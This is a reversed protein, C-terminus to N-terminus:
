HAPGHGWAGQVSRAARAHLQAVPVGRDMHALGELLAAQVGPYADSGDFVAEAAATVGAHRLDSSYGWYLMRDEEGDPVAGGTTGASRSHLYLWSLATRFSERWTALHRGLRDSDLGVLVAQSAWWLAATQWQRVVGGRSRVEAFHRRVGEVVAAGRATDPKLPLPWLTPQDLPRLANLVWFVDEAALPVGLADLDQYRFVVEPGFDEELALLEGLGEEDLLGAERYYALSAPLNSGAPRPPTADADPPEADATQTGRTGGEGADAGQPQSLVQLAERYTLDAVPQPNAQLRDWERAIRMYGQATRESFRVHERLWHLWGGHGCRAKAQALLEGAARAHGLSSRLAAEAQAHEHNIQAALVALDETPRVIAPPDFLSRDMISNM